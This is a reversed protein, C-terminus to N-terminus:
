IEREIIIATSLGGHGCIFKNNCEEYKIGTEQCLPCAFVQMTKKIIKQPSKYSLELFEDEHM